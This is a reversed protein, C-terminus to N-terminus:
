TNRGVKTLQTMRWFAQRRQLPVMEGDSWVSGDAFMVSSVALQQDRQTADTRFTHRITVGKTFKGLCQIDALTQGHSTLAFDVATAPVDQHNVFAVRVEGPYNLETGYVAPTISATVTVPPAESTQAVAFVPGALVAAAAIIAFPYFKM